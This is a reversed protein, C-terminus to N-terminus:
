TVKTLAVSQERLKFKQIKGSATMPYEECFVIYKPVKYRAIKGLCFQRIEEDTATEGEKLKLWAVVEEGFREDPVGVVQVDVVKPHQYLFEEIERPYINEGGRIIMDKLRGTIKCYGDDDMVALDGTHLWGEHDIAASTAEPNKYYGKMVQYGRTCLEGQVGRPVEENTTPDVIKVEVKPLAKGVSAVRLEIPDYVRTQTIVPSSETQGYAITIQDAGMKTVVAKMVEIPCPSGAMIGTRLSSLDYKDFDPDNLQSIFMTPVGHLATCKEQEVATLVDKVNYEQVPVMTAGVTVCALTGLVCGFCHFFPVPICMRDQETLNMCEAINVANNVINYHTLMVGKPFGTTGSTYQMNIADNPHLTSIRKVLEQDSVEDKFSVIDEWLFTGPYSTEGLVIVNKLFPFKESQLKGPEAEKLEPIIEYLMEIYSTDKFQEMLILTTSDSQKLLYELESSRYNTNVTVLVAGIKGTAFQSTVWEPRNSAWIAVHEGKKIGLKMLGKAVDKCKHNFQEYSLRLGRDPYVLADKTPFKNAVSELLEGITLKIEAAM